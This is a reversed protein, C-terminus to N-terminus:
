RKKEPPLIPAVQDASLIEHHKALLAEVRQGSTPTGKLGFMGDILKDLRHHASRLAVPRVLPSYLAALSESPFLARADLIAQSEATIQELNIGKPEIFPFVCYTLDPSISPDAKLRGAFAKVWDTFAASQLFGFLWLPCNEIVMLKNGAIVSPEFFQM